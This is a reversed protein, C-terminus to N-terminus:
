PRLVIPRPSSRTCRQFVRALAKPFVGLNGGAQVAATRGPVIALVLAFSDLDRRNLKLAEASGQFRSWQWGHDLPTTMTALSWQARVWDLRQAAPSWPDEHGHFMVIRADAPLRGGHPKLHM